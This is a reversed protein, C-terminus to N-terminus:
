DDVDVLIFSVEDETDIGDPATTLSYDDVDKGSLSESWRVTWIFRGATDRFHTVYESIDYKFAPDSM